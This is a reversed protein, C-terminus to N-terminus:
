EWRGIGELFSRCGKDVSSITAATAPAWCRTIALCRNRLRVTWGVSPQFADRLENRRRAMRVEPNFHRVLLSTDTSRGRCGGAAAALGTCATPRYRLIFISQRNVGSSMKYTAANGDQHESQIEPFAKVTMTDTTRPYDMGTEDHDASLHKCRLADGVRL